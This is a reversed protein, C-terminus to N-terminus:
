GELPLQLRAHGEPLVPDRLAAVDVGQGAGARPRIELVNSKKFSQYDKTVKAVDM